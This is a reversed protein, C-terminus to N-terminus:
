GIFHSISYGSIIVSVTSKHTLHTFSVKIFLSGAAIFHDIDVAVAIVAAFCSLGVSLRLSESDALETSVVVWFVAGTSGHAVTELLLNLEKLHEYRELLESARKLLFEMVYLMTSAVIVGAAEFVFKSDVRVDLNLTQHFIPVPYNSSVFM